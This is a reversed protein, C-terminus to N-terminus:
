PPGPTPKLLFIYRGHVSSAWKIQVLQQTYSNILSKLDAYHIRALPDIDHDPSEKALHDVKKNGM